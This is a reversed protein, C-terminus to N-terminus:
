DREPYLKYEKDGLFLREVKLRKDAADRSPEGIVRVTVGDKLDADNLGADKHRYPQGVEFTWTEGNVEVDLLGHPNGLRVKKIVGTMEVNKGTTWAWGHHALAKGAPVALALAMACLTLFIRMFGGPRVNCPPVGAMRGATALPM